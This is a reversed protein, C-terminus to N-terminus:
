QTNGNNHHRKQQTNRKDHCGSENASYSTCCRWTKWGKSKTKFEVVKKTTIVQKYIKGQLTKKHKTDNLRSVEHFWKFNNQKCLKNLNYDM